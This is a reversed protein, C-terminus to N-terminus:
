DKKKAYKPLCSPCLCDKYKDSLLKFTEKSVEFSYCWCAQDTNAYCQFKAQCKPCVKDKVGSKGM